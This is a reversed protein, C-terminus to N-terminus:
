RSRKALEHRTYLYLWGTTIVAFMLILYFGSKVTNAPQEIVLMAKVEPSFVFEKECEETRLCIGRGFHECCVYGNLCDTNSKCLSHCGESTCYSTQVVFGTISSSYFFGIISFSLIFAIIFLKENRMFSELSCPSIFRAM